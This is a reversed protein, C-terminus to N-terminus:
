KARALSPSQQPSAERSRFVRRKVLPSQVSPHLTSLEPVQTPHLFAASRMVEDASVLTVIVVAAGLLIWLSLSASWATHHAASSHWVFRLQSFSLFLFLSLFLSLFFSLYFYLYSVLVVCAFM